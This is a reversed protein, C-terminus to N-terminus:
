QPCYFSCNFGFNVADFSDFEYRIILALRSIKFILELEPEFVNGGDVSRLSSLRGSFTPQFIAPTERLM